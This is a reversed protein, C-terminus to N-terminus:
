GAEALAAMADASPTGPEAFYLFISQGDTGVLPLRVYRSRRPRRGQPAAACPHRGRRPTVDQRAWFERFLASRRSGEARPRAVPRADPTQSTPRWECCVWRARRGVGGLGRSPEARVSGGAPVRRQQRGSSLEPEASQALTNSALVDIYRNHVIAATRPWSDILWRTSEHVVDGPRGRPFRPRPDPSSDCISRPSPM